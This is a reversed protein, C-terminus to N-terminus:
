LDISRYFSTSIYTEPGRCRCIELDELRSATTGAVAPRRGLCRGSSSPGGSTGCTAKKKHDKPDLRKKMRDLARDAANMAAEVDLAHMELDKKKKALDACRRQLHDQSALTDAPSPAEVSLWSSFSYSYCSYCSYPRLFIHPPPALPIAATLVRARLTSRRAARAGLETRSLPRAGRIACTVGGVSALGLRRPKPTKESLLKRGRGGIRRPFGDPQPDWPQRQIRPLYRLM